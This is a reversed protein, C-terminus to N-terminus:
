LVLKTTYYEKISNITLYIASPVCYIIMIYTPISNDKGNIISNFINPSMVLLILPLTLETCLSLKPRNNRHRIILYLIAIMSINYLYDTIIVYLPLWSLYNFFCCVNFYILLGSYVLLRIRYDSRIFNIINKM